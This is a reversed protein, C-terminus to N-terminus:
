SEKKDAPKKGKGKAGKKAAFAAKKKKQISMVVIGGVAVAAVVGGLVMYTNNSAQAATTGGGGGGGGNGDRNKGAEITMASTEINFEIANNSVPDTVRLIKVGKDLYQSYYFVGDADASVNQVIDGDQGATGNKVTVSANALPTGDAYLLTATNTDADVTFDFDAETALVTTTQQQSSDSGKDGSKEDTEGHALSAYPIATTFSAVLALALLLKKM